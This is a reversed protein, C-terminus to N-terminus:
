DRFNSESTIISWYCCSGGASICLREEWLVKFAAEGEEWWLKLCCLSFTNIEDPGCGLDMAPFQGVPFSTIVKDPIPGASDLVRSACLSNGGVCIKLLQPSRLCATTRCSALFRNRPESCEISLM